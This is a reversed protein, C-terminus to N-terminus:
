INIFQRFNDVPSMFMVDISEDSFLCSLFNLYEKLGKVEVRIGCIFIYMKSM